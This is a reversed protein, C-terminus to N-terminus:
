APAHPRINPQYREAFFRAYPQWRRVSVGPTLVKALAAVEDVTWTIVVVDTEPLPDNADADVAAAPEPALGDPFPILDRPAPALLPRAAELRSAEEPEAELQEFGRSLLYRAIEVRDPHPVFSDAPPSGEGAM